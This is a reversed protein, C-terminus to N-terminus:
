GVQAKLGEAKMLREVRHKGCSEGLDKLDHYVKRCVYVCGSELWLQKILGLLAQNKYHRKLPSEKDMCLLWQSSCADCPLAIVSSVNYTSNSSYM